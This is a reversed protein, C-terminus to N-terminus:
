GLGEFLASGIRVITAGELIAAEFDGSMGMSLEALMGVEPLTATLEDRLMRLGAFDRRADAAAADPRGAMGMLGRLRVAPSAAAARVLAPVAAIAAGSRGPDATLNVEVLAECPLLEGAQVREAASNIAELLRLSDLTQLMALLPVTRQVKNRQLNGILHWRPAPQVTALAEAKAWISQPRSEALDVVGAEVVLRTVDASVSKTVAVLTVSEAPRGAARCAAAIRDRVSAIADHIRQRPVRQDGAEGDAM